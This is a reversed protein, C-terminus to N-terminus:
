QANLLTILKAEEMKSVRKYGRARAEIKMDKVTDKTTWVKGGGNEKEDAAQQGKLEKDVDAVQAAIEKDDAAFQEETEKELTAEAEDVLKDYKETLKKAEEPTKAGAVADAFETMVADFKEIPTM